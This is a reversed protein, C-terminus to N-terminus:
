FGTPPLHRVLDIVGFNELTIWIVFLGYLSLLIWCEGHSLLMKTRMMLFLVFTALILTALLPVAVSFNIPASGAILVGIPICCLLDFVNSGLVNATSTLGRGQRAARISVFADPISTGAAVITVGWLFGPTHLLDGFHVAARVLGEVGILIATLAIGLRLWQVWPRIRTRERDPEHDITDQYQMFVYVAYLALPLLALGRGMEGRIAGDGSSLPNYIAALSFTLLLIALAILYFQGEKYVLDRNTTLQQKQTLGSLGPIVLINFLASGVIAAVGLEFEGHVLTSVVVTSLEPFSSGVAVILAGQVIDPLGYHTSLSNSASELLGSGKWVLLTGAAAVLSWVLLQLVLM